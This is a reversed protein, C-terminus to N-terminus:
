LAGKQKGSRVRANQQQGNQEIQVDIYKLLDVGGKPQLVVTVAPVSASGPGVGLKRGTEAWVQRSRAEQGPKGSIFAEWRTEPEAFKYLPAGGAYIGAGFGGDAYAYMGGNANAIKLGGTTALNNAGHLNVSIDINRQVHNLTNILDEADIQAQTKHLNVYADISTPILGLKDAYDQAAQGTIGFQALATILAARGDNIAATADKQDGTQTVVAAAHALASKAIQELAASNDRGDQTNIDLSNTFGDLSGHAQKYADAESKLKTTVDDISQHFSRNTDEVDFQAKGFNTIETALDSIQGSADQATGSLQALQSSQQATSGAADETATKLDKQAASYQPFLKALNSLAEKSGDTKSKLYDFTKAAQDGHGANVMDALSKDLTQVRSSLDSTGAGLTKFVPNWQNLSDVWDFIEKTSGALWGTDTLLHLQDMGTKVGGLSANFQDNIASKDVGKELKKTLSDVSEQLGLAEREADVFGSSLQALWALVAVYPLARVASGAATMMQASDTTVLNLEGLAAKTAAIKPVLSVFAGGLLLVSAAAGAVALGTALIPQPLDGVQHLLDTAGQVLGRLMGNASSGTEILDNQFAAGLKSIDGKLNDMKGAAQQAAFGNDNVESTWKAIGDAGEKYLVNAGAIARAGFITSLTQNRQAESLAGLKDHLQGALASIGVFKGSADYLSIGLKDMDAKSQASPDALKLLMQRLDTGATEGLLGANAFASLTGITEELSVGFQAAVLGGSKLAEGLDSVGGLAKDAGAALLDAVHPIDKGKLEFQTLAITAIETADAVNIQGAAALELSGKLAGGLINSVSVGAKVLEIEADATESASFGIGQGATMAAKSLAMMDDSSAHSLARVQSMKADFEAFSAVAVTIGAAIVGGALLATRGIETFAQKQAALKQTSGAAFEQTKRQAQDIGALYNSFNATFTVKTTRDAM